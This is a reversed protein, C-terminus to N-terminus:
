KCYAAVADLTDKAQDGAAAPVSVDWGHPTAYLYVNKCTTPALFCWREWLIGCKDETAEMCTAGLERLHKRADKAREYAQAVKSLKTPKM